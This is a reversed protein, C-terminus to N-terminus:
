LKMLLVTTSPHYAEIHFGDPNRDDPDTFGYTEHQFLDVLSDIYVSVPVM